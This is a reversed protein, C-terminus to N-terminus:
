GNDSWAWRVRYPAFGVQAKFIRLGASAGLITDYMAWKPREEPSLGILTALVEQVLLYMVGHELHRAHGIITDFLFLEGLVRGYLYAALEGSPARVGFYHGPRGAWAELLARDLYIPPLRGGQRFETSVNIAHIADLEGAPDIAGFRYGAERARRSKSRLHRASPGGLLTDLRDPVTVLAVGLEKRGIIPLLPHRRVFSEYIEREAEGGSVTIEVSPLERLARVVEVALRLRRPVFSPSRPLPRASVM